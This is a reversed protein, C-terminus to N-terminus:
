YDRKEKLMELYDLTLFFFFVRYVGFWEIRMERMSSVILTFLSFGVFLLLFLLHGAIGRGDRRAEFGGIM